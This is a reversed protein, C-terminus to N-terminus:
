KNNILNILFEKEQELIHKKTIILVQENELENILMDLIKIRNEIVKEM